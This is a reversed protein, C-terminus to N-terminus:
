LNEDSRSAKENEEESNETSSRKRREVVEPENEGFKVLYELACERLKSFVKKDKPSNYDKISKLVKRCVEKMDDKHSASDQDKNYKKLLKSCYQVSSHILSRRKQILSAALTNILREYVTLVEDSVSSSNNIEDLQVKYRQIKDELEEFSSNAEQISAPLNNTTAGLEYPLRLWFYLDQM